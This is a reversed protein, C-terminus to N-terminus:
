PMVSPRSGAIAVLGVKDIRGGLRPREGLADVLRRHHDVEVGIVGIDLLLAEGVREGVAAPQHTIDMQRLAVAAHRAGAVDVPM